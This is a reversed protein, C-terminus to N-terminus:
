MSLGEFMVWSGEIVIAVTVYAGREGEFIHCGVLKCIFASFLEALVDM